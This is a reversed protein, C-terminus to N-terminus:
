ARRRVADTIELLRDLGWSGMAANLAYLVVRLNGDVYGLEPRIRDISPSDVYFAQGAEMNFPLGSLECVGKDMIAQLRALETSTVEYRIAKKRARGRAAALLQTARRYKKLRRNQEQAYGPRAAKWQQM